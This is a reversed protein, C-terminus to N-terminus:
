VKDLLNEWVKEWVKELVNVWIKEWVKGACKDLGEGM